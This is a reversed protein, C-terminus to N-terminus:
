VFISQQPLISSAYRLLTSETDSIAVATCSAALNEIRFVIRNFPCWNRSMTYVAMLTMLATVHDPMRIVRPNGYSHSKTWQKMYLYPGGVQSVQVHTRAAKMPLHPKEM